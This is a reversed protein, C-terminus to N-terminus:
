PWNLEERLSQLEAEGIGGSFAWLLLVDEKKPWILMRNGWDDKILNEGDTDLDQIIGAPLSRDDEGLVLENLDAFSDIKVLWLKEEEERTYLVSTAHLPEESVTILELSFSGLEVPPYEGARDEKAPLDDADTQLRSDDEGEDESVHPEAEELEEEGYADIGYDQGVSEDETYEQGELAGYDKDPEADSEAEPEAEDFMVMEEQSTSAEDSDDPLYHGGAQFFWWGAGVILLISAAIGLPRELVAFINKRRKPPPPQEFSLRSSIQSWAEEPPPAELSDLEEKIVGRIFEDENNEINQRNEQRSDSM